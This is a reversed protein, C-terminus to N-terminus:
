YQAIPVLKGEISKTMHAGHPGKLTLNYITQSFANPSFANPCGVLDDWSAKVMIDM